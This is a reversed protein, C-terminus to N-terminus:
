KVLSGLVMQIESCAKTIETEIPLASPLNSFMPRPENYLTVCFNQCSRGDIIERVKNEIARIHQVFYIRVVLIDFVNDSFNGLEAGNLSSTILKERYSSNETDNKLHSKVYIPVFRKQVHSYKLFLKDM